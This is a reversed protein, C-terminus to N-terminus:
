NPCPATKRRVRGRSNSLPYCKLQQRGIPFIVAFTSGGQDLCESPKRVWTCRSIRGPCDQGTNELAPCRRSKFDVKFDLEDAFTKIRFLDVGAGGANFNYPLKSAYAGCDQTPCFGSFITRQNERTIGVGSDRFEVRVEGPCNLAMIEVLGEDPTNEIANKLLGTGLQRLVKKDTFVHLGDGLHHTLCIDRRGAIPLVSKCIQELVSSLDIWEMSITYPNEIAQVRKKLQCMISNDVTPHQEEVEQILDLFLSFQRSHRENETKMFNALIDNTKRQMDTLRELCRSGRGLAKEVKVLEDADLKERILRISGKLIALPTRLEHSLHNMAKKKANDMMKLDEYLRANELAITVYHSAAVIIELDQQNYSGCKKNVAQLTGICLNQRNILPVCIINSTRLGTKLDVERFFRPDGYADNIIQPVRNEFVWGAIGRRQSIRIEGKPYDRSVLLRLEQSEQDHLFVSCTESHMLETIQNVILDFLLDLNIESTIIKGMASILRQRKVMDQLSYDDARRKRCRFHQRSSRQGNM